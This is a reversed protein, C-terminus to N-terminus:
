CIEKNLTIDDTWFSYFPLVYWQPMSSYAINRFSLKQRNLLEKIERNKKIYGERTLKRM